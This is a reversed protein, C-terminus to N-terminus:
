MSYIFYRLISVFTNYQELYAFHGGNVLVLNSSKILKNLKKAMYKPTEKDQRGWFLITPVNINIAYKELFTNVINVFTKKMITSLQNYDTSGSIKGINFKKCFKNRLVKCYYKISRKPKIGASATLFLKSCYNGSALLIAVRGGFSHGVVVPKEFNCLRMIHLTLEAYDFITFSTIPEQSKGFPPFDIFLMQSDNLHNSVFKFSDISGGWGHLFVVQTKGNGVLEYNVNINKYKYLM